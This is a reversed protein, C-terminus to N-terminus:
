PLRLKEIAAILEDLDVPKKLFGNAQAKAQKDAIQGDASMVLVPLSALRKDALQEQRFTFGDMVPMMLDLLILKPLENATKLYALAEKGNCAVVPRYDMMELFECVSERIASDDEVILIITM